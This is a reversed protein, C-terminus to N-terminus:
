YRRRKQESPSLKNVIEARKASSKWMKLALQYDVGDDRMDQIYSRMAETLPGNNPARKQNGDTMAKKKTTKTKKGDTNKTNKDKKIKSETEPVTDTDPQDTTKSRPKKREPETETKKKKENKEKEKMEKELRKAAALQAKKMPHPVCPPTPLDQIFSERLNPPPTSLM